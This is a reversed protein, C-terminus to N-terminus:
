QVAVDTFLVQEVHVDTAKHISKLIRKKLRRRGRRDILTEGDASTLVDTVIDRVLAEQPLPGYGEPPKTGHGEEAALHGKELVLGVSLKAYRGDALNLVFEKPLVYVDGDVKPDEEAPKALVMAYLGGGLILLTLPLILKLKKM